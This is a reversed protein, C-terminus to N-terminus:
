CAAVQRAVRRRQGEARQEAALRRQECSSSRPRPGVTNRRGCAHVGRGERHGEGAGILM